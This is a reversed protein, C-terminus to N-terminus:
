ASNQVYREWLHEARFGLIRGAKSSDMGSWNGVLGSKSKAVGPLYQKLLDDTPERMNSTPAAVNFISHGAPAAELGLRCAAVADRVDIYTWFGPLRYRPNSLREKLLRFEPDFNIGPLRLSAISAGTETAFSDAITEGVLKSLGYPDTPQCPHDEDLPLYKPQPMTRAYLFGYAAISSAVVVKRIKSDAAVKLVNYAASANNNFTVGDPALNPAPIAALHVLAEAGAFAELLDDTRSLDCVRSARLSPNAVRDVGLIDHGAAALNEAVHQGFKGSSGTVVIEMQSGRKPAKTRCRNQRGGKCPCYRVSIYNVGAM